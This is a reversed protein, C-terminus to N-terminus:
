TEVFQLSALALFVAIAAGVAGTLDAGVAKLTAAFSTDGLTSLALLRGERAAIAGGLM